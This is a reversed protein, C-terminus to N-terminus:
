ASYMSEQPCQIELVSEIEGWNRMRTRLEEDNAGDDTNEVNSVSGNITVSPQNSNWPQDFIVHKWLPRASGVVKPKDDILINGKVHTKDQALILRQQWDAGLHDAVWQYKEAACTAACLPHPATVLRVDYGKTVMWKLSEVAGEYPAMGVYLGPLSITNLVEGRKELPFNMELEYQKRNYVLQADEKASEPHRRMWRALFAGDFNVVTSDMDVLVVKKNDDRSTVSEVSSEQNARQYTVSELLGAGATQTGRDVLGDVPTEGNVRDEETVDDNEEQDSMYDSNNDDETNLGGGRVDKSNPLTPMRLSNSKMRKEAASDIVDDIIRRYANGMTDYSFQRLVRQRGRRAYQRRLKPNAILQHVRDALHDADGPPILFGDQGDTLAEPIGDIDSAVVPREFAMAECVVLPLVENLSPVVLVDAAIYYPLVNKQIDLITVKDELQGETIEKKIENLYQIEHDRIYRAGVILLKATKDGKENVLKRFAQMTSLQAKRKCVTGLHLVVFDSESYGLNARVEERDTKARYSDIKKLPIGNYVVSCDCSQPILSSYLKRQIHAPFVIHDACSFASKIVAADIHKMLFVEKAYYEFQDSPWAEHIVWVNPLRMDYAIKIVEARMITNVFIVGFQGSTLKQKIVDHYSPESPPVVHVPVGMREFDARMPGEKPAFLEFEQTESLQIM